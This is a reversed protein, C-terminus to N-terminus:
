ELRSNPSMFCYHGEIYKYVDGYNPIEDNFLEKLGALMEDEQGIHTTFENKISITKNLFDDIKKLREFIVRKIQPIRWTSIWSAPYFM